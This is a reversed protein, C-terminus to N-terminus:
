GFGGYLYVSATTRFFRKNGNNKMQFSFGQLIKLNLIFITIKDYLNM